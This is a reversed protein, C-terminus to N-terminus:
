IPSLGPGFVDIMFSWIISTLALLELAAVLKTFFANMFEFRLLLAFAAGSYLLFGNLSRDSTGIFIVVTVYFILPLNSDYKRKSLVIIVILALVVLLLTSVNLSTARFFM